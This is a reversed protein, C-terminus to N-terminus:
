LSTFTASPEKTAFRGPRRIQFACEAGSNQYARGSAESLFKLSRECEWEFLTVSSHCAAPTAASSLHCIFFSILGVAFTMQVPSRKVSNAVASIGSSLLCTQRRTRRSISIVPRLKFLSFAFLSLRVNIHQLARVSRHFERSSAGVSGSLENQASSNVLATLVAIVNAALCVRLPLQTHPTHSLRHCQQLPRKTKLRM